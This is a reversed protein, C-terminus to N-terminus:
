REKEVQVMVEGDEEVLRLRVGEIGASRKARYLAQRLEEAGRGVPAILLGRPTTLASLLMSILSNM